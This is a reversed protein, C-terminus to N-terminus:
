GNANDVATQGWEGAITWQWDHLFEGSLEVRARRLFLTPNLGVGAGLNSVGPGLPWYGDIHARGQLYLRFEDNADRLYFYESTRGALPWGDPPSAPPAPAPGQALALRPPTALALFSLLVVRALRLAGNVGRASASM